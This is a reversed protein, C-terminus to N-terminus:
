IFYDQIIPVHTEAVEINSIENKTFFRLKRSEASCKLIPCRSLETEYVVTIVRLVNGDPYSVIRSPDDYIKLFKVKNELLSIGTEEFTERIVGSILSENVRLGGGIIAWRDSDSRQELLIKEDFKIIVTTGIHNPQNPRPANSDNYYFKAENM